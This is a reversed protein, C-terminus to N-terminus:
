YCSENMDKLTKNAVYGLREIKKSSYFTDLFLKDVKQKVKPHILGALNFAFNPIRWKPASKGLLERMTDYIERSSYHKGDTINFIEATNQNNESVFMIARVLDDVHVMSKRNKINPLPPFWGRKIGLMMSNLNGKVSPGYVLSPRIISLHVDTEKLIKILRIEAKRKTFAYFDKNKLQSNKYTLNDGAKVSSIFIFNKVNNKLATEALKITATLNIKLYYDEDRKNSIDHASGALHIVTNVDKFFDFPIENNAIDCKTQQHLINPNKTRVLLRLDSGQEALASVLKSGIFGSSGTIAVVKNQFYNM